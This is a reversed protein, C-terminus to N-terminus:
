PLPLAPARAARAREEKVQKFLFLAAVSFGNCRTVQFVMSFTMAEDRRMMAKM